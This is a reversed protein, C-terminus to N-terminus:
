LLLIAAAFLDVSNRDLFNRLHRILDVARLTLLGLAVLLHQDRDLANALDDVAILLSAALELGHGLSTVSEWSSACSSADEARVGSLESKGM